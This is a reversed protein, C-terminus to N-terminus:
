CQPDSEFGQVTVPTQVQPSLVKELFRLPNKKEEYTSYLLSIDSREKKRGVPRSMEFFTNSEDMLAAELALAAQNVPVHTGAQHRPGARRQKPDGQADLVWRGSGPWTDAMTPKQAFLAM